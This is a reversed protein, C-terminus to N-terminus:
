VPCTFAIEDALHKLYKQCSHRPIIHKKVEETWFYTSYKVHNTSKLITPKDGLLAVNGVKKGVQATSICCKNKSLPHIKKYRLKNKNLPIRFYKDSFNSIEIDLRFMFKSSTDSRALLHM